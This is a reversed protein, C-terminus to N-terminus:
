LFPQIPTKKKMFAIQYGVCLDRITVTVYLILIDSAYHLYTRYLAKAYEQM